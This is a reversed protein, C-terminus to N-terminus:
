KLMRIPKKVFWVLLEIRDGSPESPYLLIIFDVIESLTNEELRVLGTPNTDFM